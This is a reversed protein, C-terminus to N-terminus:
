KSQADRVRRLPKELGVEATLGFIVLGEGTGPPVTVDRTDEYEVSFGECEQQEVHHQPEYRGWGLMETATWSVSETSSVDDDVYVRMTAAHPTKDDGDLSVYWCRSFGAVDGLSIYRSRFRMSVYEVDEGNTDLWSSSTERFLVGESTVYWWGGRVYCAGAITPYGASSPDVYTNTGWAGGHDIDYEVTRMTGSLAFRVLSSEPITAASVIPTSGLSAQVARGVITINLNRDVLALGNQSQFLVGYLCSTISRADVIGLDGPIRQPRSFTGGSVGDTAPGQGTMVYVGSAKFLLTKDDLGAVAICPGGAFSPITLFLSFRPAEGNVIPQSFWITDDDTGCLWVRDDIVTVFSASSPIQGDLGLGPPEMLPRTQLNADSLESVIEESYARLQRNAYMDAAPAEDTERYFTTGDALTRYVVITVRRLGAALDTYSVREKNTVTLSPVRFRTKKDNTTTDLRMPSDADSPASRVVRGDAFHWEYGFRYYYTSDSTLFGGFEPSLTPPDVKTVDPEWAIGLECVSDGDYASVAGGSMLLELGVTSAVPKIDGCTVYLVAGYVTGAQDGSVCPAIVFEGSELRGVNSRSNFQRGGAVALGSGLPAAAQRPAIVSVLRRSKDTGVSDPRSAADVPTIEMLFLTRHTDHTNQILVYPRGEDDTFPAGVMTTWPIFGPRGVPFGPSVPPTYTEFTYFVTSVVGDFPGTWALMVDSTGYDCMGCALMNSNGEGDVGLNEGFTVTSLLDLTATEVIYGIPWYLGSGSMSSAVYLQDNSARYHIGISSFLTNAASPTTDIVTQPLVVSLTPSLMIVNTSCLGASDTYSAIALNGNANCAAVYASLTNATYSLGTLVDVAATWSMDTTDLIAVRCADEFGFVVYVLSGIAVLHPPGLPTGDEEAVVYQFVARGGTESDIVDVTIKAMPEPNSLLTAVASGTAYVIWRGVVVLNADRGSQDGATVTERRVLVNPTYGRFAQDNDGVDMYSTLCNAGVRVIERGRAALLEPSPPTFGCYNLRAECVTGYRKSIAGTRIQRCNEMVLVRSCLRPHSDEDVGGVLPFGVIQEALPM